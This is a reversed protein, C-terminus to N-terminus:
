RFQRMALQIEERVERGLAWGLRTLDQRYLIKPTDESNDFVFRARRFGRGYRGLAAVDATFQYSHDTLYPGAQGIADEDLVDALWAMSKLSGQNSIRQGIVAPALDIGIGPVCELVERPATNVNVLGEIVTANTAVLTTHVLEFEDASMGSASYFELVSRIQRGGVSQVIENARDEGISESLLTVLDQRGQQSTVDVREVGENTVNTQRSHVTVYEVLGPDLTGDRDDFPESEIGDDENPDLVGNLNTDEGYLIELTMGYVLRLEEVTEFPANKATRAPTLRAYSEDEAGSESVDSDEDRWDVIAAALEATMRPLAELMEATATNLNLKSAEDILGFVAREPRIRDDSRGVYWFIADDVPVAEQVYDILEPLVGNTNFNSLVYRAYRAAGEIAADAQRAAVRNESTRMELSMSNAFYLSLVVLGFAVWLVIVLVSGRDYPSPLRMKM